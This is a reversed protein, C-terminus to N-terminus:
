RCRKVIALADGVAREVKDSPRNAIRLRGNDKPDAYLLTSSGGGDLNIVERAGLALMIEATERLSTGDSYPKQRGDIVAFILHKGNRSFGAATRPNRAIFSAQGFTDAAALIMSDRALVPRGGVAETPFFPALTGDKFTFTGISPVGNVDFALVPQKSPTTLMKGNVVLLNTPRGTQLNFFDANVGGLVRDRKALDELMVSTKIRGNASDVGKVAVVTNCRDLDVELTYIAWPGKPSYIYRHVVGDSVVDTRVTDAPFPLPPLAPVVFARSCAAALTLGVVLPLTKRM